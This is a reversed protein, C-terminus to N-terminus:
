ECYVYYRSHSLLMDEIRKETVSEDSSMSAQQTNYQSSYHRKDNSATMNMGVFDSLNYKSNM